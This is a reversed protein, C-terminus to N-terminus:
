SVRFSFDIAEELFDSPFILLQEIIEASPHREYTSM